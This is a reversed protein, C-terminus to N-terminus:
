NDAKGKTLFYGIGVVVLIGVLVLMTTTSGFFDLITDMLGGVPDSFRRDPISLQCVASSKKNSMGTWAAVGKKRKKSKPNALFFFPPAFIAQGKGTPITGILGFHRGM